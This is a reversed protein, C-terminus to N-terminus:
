IMESEVSLSNTEESEYDNNEDILQNDNSEYLNGNNNDIERKDELKEANNENNGIKSTKRTFSEKKPRPNTETSIKIPSLPNKKTPNQSVKKKRSMPKEVLNPKNITKKWKEATPLGVPQFLIFEFHQKYIRM